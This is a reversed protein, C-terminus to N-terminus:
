LRPLPSQDASAITAQGPVGCTLCRGYGAYRVRSGCISGAPM